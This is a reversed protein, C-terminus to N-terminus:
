KQAKARIKHKPSCSGVCWKRFANYADECRVLQHEFGLRHSNAVVRAMLKVVEIDVGAGHPCTPENIRQHGFLLKHCYGFTHNCHSQQRSATDIFAASM